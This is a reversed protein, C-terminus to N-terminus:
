KQWFKRAIDHAFVKLLNFYCASTVYTVTKFLLLAPAEKVSLM